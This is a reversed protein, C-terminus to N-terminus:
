PKKQLKPKKQALKRLPEFGYLRTHGAVYLRERDAVVPSYQGDWFKWLVQGNRADLGFTGRPGQKTYRSGGTGCHPCTSFYLIGNLVTPAGHVASPANFTWITDGTGADFASVKGDWTGVYVKRRWVAAATYVYTGAHRAWLLHGTRAGFAFLTGDTNGIFVRGYAITPTAYFYERRGFRAFSQARWQIGGTRANLAYVSGNDTGFYVLGSGYAPSSHIENDAKFKWLLRPRKRHSVDLAYLYHDWSGFYLVNDVLLPSTEVAGAPFRWLIRGTIPRGNKDRVLMAVVFGRQTRPYRNCPWPQMLAQYVVDQGITPSSAACHNFDKRWRTRGTAADIAFFRGKLQTVFLIGYGVVPPFELTNWTRVTWLQRFPPRMNLQNTAHTRAPDYGYTPWPVTEISKVPRKKLAPATTVFEVTASGRKERTRTQQYYYIAGAAIVGIVLVASVLLIRRVPRRNYIRARGRRGSFQPRV